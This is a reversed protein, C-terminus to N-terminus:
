KSLFRLALDRYFPVHSWYGGHAIGWGELLNLHVNDEPAIRYFDLRGSIPDNDNYYNVWPLRDLKPVVPNALLYRNRGVQLPKAKFSHLHDIIQRRVYQEKGAQERFFFAVKDLPSGFTVLGALKELPLENGDPLNAQLNLRNLTDYAIVSGLSHGALLVRDCDDDRLLDELLAQSERLIKQRVDYHSSKQDTTTYLAIDGIYGIIFSVARREFWDRLWRFVRGYPGAWQLIRTCLLVVPYLWRLVRALFLFRTGYSELEGPAYRRQLETNEEYFRRTGELTEEVWRWIEPLSIKGESLFAWYYEHVDIWADAAGEPQIRVYNEKWASGGASKREAIRHVLQFPIEESELYRVFGRTFDDLTDFPNQQGIGHIVVFATRGKPFRDAM